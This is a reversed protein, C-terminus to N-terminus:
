WFPSTSYFVHLITRLSDLFESQLQLSQQVIRGPTGLQYHFPPKGFSDFYELRDPREHYFAVWHSGPETAKDANVVYAAPCPLNNPVEDAAYVGRFVSRTVPTALWLM